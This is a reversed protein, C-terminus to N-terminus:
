SLDEFLIQKHGTMSACTQIYGRCCSQHTWCFISNFHLKNTCSSLKVHQGLKNCVFSKKINYIFLYIYLFFVHGARPPM